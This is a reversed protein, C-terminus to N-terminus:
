SRRVDIGRLEGLEAGQGVAPPVRRALEARQVLDIRQAEPVDLPQDAPEGALAHEVHAAAASDEGLGHRVPACLDGADVQGLLGDLDRHQVAHLRAVADFVPEDRRLREGGLHGLAEITTVQM